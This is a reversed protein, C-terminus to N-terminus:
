RHHCSPLATCGRGPVVGADSFPVGADAMDSALASATTEAESLTSAVGASPDTERRAQKRARSAALAARRRRAFYEAMTHQSRISRAVGPFCQFECRSHKM